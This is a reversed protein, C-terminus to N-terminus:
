VQQRAELEVKETETITQSREARCRPCTCPGAKRVLLYLHSRIQAGVARDEDTLEDSPWIAVSLASSDPRLCFNRAEFSLLLKLAREPVQVSFLEVHTM